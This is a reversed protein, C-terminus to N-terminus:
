EGSVLLLGAAVGLSLQDLDAVPQKAGRAVNSRATVKRFIAGIDDDDSLEVSYIHARHETVEVKPDPVDFVASTPM